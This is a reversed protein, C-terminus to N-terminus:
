GYKKVGSFGDLCKSDLSFVRHFPLQSLVDIFFWKEPLM